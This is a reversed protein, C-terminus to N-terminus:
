ASLREWVYLFEDAWQDSGLHWQAWLRLLQKADLSELQKADDPTVTVKGNQYECGYASAIDHQLKTSLQSFRAM